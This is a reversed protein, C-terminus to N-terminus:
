IKWNEEQLWSVPAPPWTLKMCPYMSIEHFCPIFILNIKTNYNKAIYADNKLISNNECYLSSTNELNFHDLSLLHESKPLCLNLM